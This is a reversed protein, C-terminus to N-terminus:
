RSECIWQAYQKTYYSLIFDAGARKFSAFTELVVKKEDIWGKEAAAKIMAYEGSVHYVGLPISPHRQKIRVVMDLYSIGPKVMVLDAGEQIDLDVERIGEQANCFDLQYTARDGFQPAGEAAMRFPAYFSSAYKVSYSLIPLFSFQADDLAKRLFTVMGDLMASPAIVDAGAQALLIAQESLVELSRDNDIHGTKPEIVGCHGHDTYECFCLDAIVLLSPAAKKIEGIARQIIGEKALAASGIGDKYSPIGFLLISRIGLCALEKVENQLASLPIQDIGPMSAIPVRAGEEGKIFLPYILDSLRVETEQILSRLSPHTRLRKLRISPFGSPFVTTM